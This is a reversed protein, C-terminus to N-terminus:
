IYTASMGYTYTNNVVSWMTSINLNYELLKDGSNVHQQLANAEWASTRQPEDRTEEGVFTQQISCGSGNTPFNGKDLSVLWYQSMLAM